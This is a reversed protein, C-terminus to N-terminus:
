AMFAGLLNGGLGIASGIMADKRAKRAEKLSDEKDLQRERLGVLGSLASLGIESDGQNMFDALGFAQQFRQVRQADRRRLSDMTIDRRAGMLQGQQRLGINGALAAAAGSNPNIGRAGISTRLASLGESAERGFRDAAGSFLLRDLRANDAAFGENSRQFEGKLFGLSDQFRQNEVGELQFAKVLAAELSSEMAVRARANGDGAPGAHQAQALGQGLDGASINEGRAFAALMENLSKGVNANLGGEQARRRDMFSAFPSDPM